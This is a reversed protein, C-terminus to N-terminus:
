KKFFSKMIKQYARIRFPPKYVNNFTFLDAERQIEIKTPHTISKIEQLTLNALHSVGYDTHTGEMSFGINTTLNYNPTIAIGENLWISYLWQYDWTDILNNKAVFLKKLWYKKENKSQIIREFIESSIFIEYEKMKLDYKKWARRWSGWGWIHCYNSFYYSHEGRVIGKQFNNGGIHMVKENNRYKKLLEQVFYFFSLNPIVDDELIIGEEENEFFWDIGSSVALKCGFNKERYFTKVECDWDINNVINRAAKCKGKEGIKNERAGDASVYLKKPKVLKIKEFVKETTDPRNFILFLIPTNFESQLM